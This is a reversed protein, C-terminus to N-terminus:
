NFATLKGNKFYLYQNDYVWQEGYSANNIKDPKGWALVAMEKTFGVLVKNDLIKLWNTMGFKNKYYDAAKAFYVRGKSYENFSYDYSLTTKENLSNKLVLSLEYYVEDVTLDVCEWKQGSTKTILKGTNIDIQDEMAKNCLVFKEGVLRKKQKEFFGVVIFPFSHEYKSDYEFYVKDGSKKDKLELFYKTGYLQQIVEAKPHKYVCLVSFYKGQLENYSSNYSDGKKYVNSNETKSKTYDLLFGDYGYKKEKDPKGKLYLDQGIYKYVSEGLFNQLSDYQSNSVVEKNEAIKTTTIQGYIIQCLFMLTLILITNNKKM